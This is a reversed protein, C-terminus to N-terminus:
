FWAHFGLISNSCLRFESGVFFCFVVVIGKSQVVETIEDIKRSEGCIRTENADTREVKPINATSSNSSTASKGMGRNMKKRDSDSLAVGAFLLCGSNLAKGRTGV